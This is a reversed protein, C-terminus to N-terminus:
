DAHRHRVENLCARDSEATQDPQRVGSPGSQSKRCGRTECYKMSSITVGIILLSLTFPIKKPSSCAVRQQLHCCVDGTTLSWFNHQKTVTYIIRKVDRVVAERRRM